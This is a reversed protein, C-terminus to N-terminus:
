GRVVVGARFYRTFSEFASRSVTATSPGSPDHIIFARPSSVRGRFGVVTWTHEVSWATVLTGDWARWRYRYIGSAGRHAGWVVVPFGDNIMRAVAVPTFATGRITMSPRCGGTFYTAARAIPPYHVGYGDRMMTGNVNGCFARNPNCGGTVAPRRRDYGTVRYVSLDSTIHSRRFYNHASRLSAAECSLRYQQRYYPVSLRVGGDSFRRWRPTVVRILRWSSVPGGLTTANEVFRANFRVHSGARAIASWSAVGSVVTRGTVVYPVWAGSSWRHVTFAVVGPVRAYARLVYRRGAIVEHWGYCDRLREGVVDLRLVPARRRVKAAYRFAAPQTTSGHPEVGWAAVYYREGASLWLSLSCVSAVSCAPAREVAFVEREAAAGPDTFPVGEISARYVALECLSASGDVDDEVSLELLAAEPAYVSYLRVYPEDSQGTGDDCPSTGTAPATTGSVGAVSGLGGGPVLPDASLDAVAARPALASVACITVAAVFRTSLRMRQTM